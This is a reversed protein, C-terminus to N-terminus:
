SNSWTSRLRRGHKVVLILNMVAVVLLEWACLACRCGDVLWDLERVPSISHLSSTWTYWLPSCCKEIQCQEVQRAADVHVVAREMDSGDCGFSLLAHVPSVVAAATNVAAVAVAM